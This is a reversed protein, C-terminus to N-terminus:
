DRYTDPDLAAKSWARFFQMIKRKDYGLGDELLGTDQTHIRRGKEDLIVFVPFGFRQPYELYSLVEENKVKQDYNVKISVYQSNIYVDLEENEKVYKNFKICWGCWNGGVQVFVHKGTEKAEKIAEVLEAKADAEPNYLKPKAAEQSYFIQSVFLIIVLILFRKVAINSITIFNM